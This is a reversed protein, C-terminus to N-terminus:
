AVRSDLVLPAGTLGYPARQARCDNAQQVTLPTTYLATEKQTLSLLLADADVALLGAAVQLPEPLVPGPAM